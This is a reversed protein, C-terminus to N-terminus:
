VTGAKLTLSWIILWKVSVSPSPFPTSPSLRVSRRCVEWCPARGQLGQEPCAKGVAVPIPGLLAQKYKNLSEDDQDLQQIEQLSKKEPTKYALHVDDVDEELSLTVGDKDAM